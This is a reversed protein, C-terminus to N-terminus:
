WPPFPGMFRLVDSSKLSERCICPMADSHWRMRAPQLRVSRSRRASRAVTLCNARQSVIECLGRMRASSRNCGFQSPKTELPPPRRNVTRPKRCAVRDGRGRSLPRRPHTAIRSQRMRFGTQRQERAIAALEAIASPIPRLRLFCDTSTRIRVFEAIPRQWAANSNIVGRSRPQM